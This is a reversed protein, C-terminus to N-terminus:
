LHSCRCEKGYSESEVTFLCWLVHLTSCKYSCCIKTKKYVNNLITTTRSSSNSTQCNFELRFPKITLRRRQSGAFCDLLTTMRLCEDKRACSAIWFCRENEDTMTFTTKALARLLGTEDKTTTM